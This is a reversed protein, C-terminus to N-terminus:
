LPKLRHVVVQLELLLGIVVLVVVALVEVLLRVVESQIEVVVGAARLLLTIL